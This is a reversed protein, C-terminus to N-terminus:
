GGARRNRRYAWVVIGAGGIAVAGIAAWLTIPATTTSSPIPTAIPTPTFTPIAVLTLTPTQSPMLAISTSGATSTPEPMQSPTSTSTSTPTPWCRARMEALRPTNLRPDDSAVRLAQELVTCTQERYDRDEYFSAGSRFDLYDLYVDLSNPALQLARRYAAEAEEAFHKCYPREGGYLRDVGKILVRALWLQADLSDPNAQAKERAQRIQGWITPALVTISINDEETPELDNLHWVVDTGSVTYTDPKPTWDSYEEDLVSNQNSVDYPLRITITGEGIPGYWGAGTELTYTFAGWSNGGYPYMEYDVGLNVTQNPPFTAQWVAWIRGEQEVKTSPAIKGDVYATFDDIEHQDYGTGLPFRVDLKETATGRNVMAFYGQTHAMMKDAVYFREELGEKRYVPPKNNDAIVMLVSESVMQVYTSPNGSDVSTGPPPPPPAADALAARVSGMAALTVIISVVLHRHKM